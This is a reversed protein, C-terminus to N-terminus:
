NSKPKWERALRQAAAIQDPTMKAAVVDRDKRAAARNTADSAPFNTAALNLWM